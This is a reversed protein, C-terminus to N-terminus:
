TVKKESDEKSLDKWHRPQFTDRFHLQKMEDKVAEKAPDGWAKLGAKMSLQTLITAAVKPLEAQM